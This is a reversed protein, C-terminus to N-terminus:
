LNVSLSLPKPLDLIKGWTMCWTLPVDSNGGIDSLPSPSFQTMYIWNLGQSASGRTVDMARRERKEM